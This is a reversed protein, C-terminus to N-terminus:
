LVFHAHLAYDTYRSAVSQVTRLSFGQQPSFKQVVGSLGQPGGLKRYLLFRTKGSPLDAPVHRQGGVGDVDSTLSLAFRYSRKGDPSEHGINHYVKANNYMCVFVRIIIYKNNKTIFKEKPVSKTGHLFDM